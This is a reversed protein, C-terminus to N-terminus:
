KAEEHTLVRNASYYGCWFGHYKEGRYFLGYRVLQNEPRVAAIYFRGTPEKIRNLATRDPLDIGKAMVVPITTNSKPFKINMKFSRDVNRYFTKSPKGEPFLQDTIDNLVVSHHGTMARKAIDLLEDRIDLTRYSLLAPRLLRSIILDEFMWANRDESFTMAGKPFGAKCAQAFKKRKLLETNVLCIPSFRKLKTVGQWAENVHEAAITHVCNVPEKHLTIAFMTDPILKGVLELDDKNKAHNGSLLYHWSEGGVTAVPCPEGALIYNYRQVNIDSLDFFNADGLVGDDLLSELETDEEAVPSPTNWIATYSGECRSSIGSGRKALADAMENGHRGTHAPIKVMTVKPGSMRIDYIRKVLELNAVPTGDGKLWGRKQWGTIWQTFTNILYTSDSIIIYEKAQLPIGDKLKPNHFSSLFAVLEAVQADSHPLPIIGEVFTVIGEPLEPLEAVGVKAFETPTIAETIGPVRYAPEVFDARNYFYGYIGSGTGAPSPIASGDTYLVAVDFCDSM